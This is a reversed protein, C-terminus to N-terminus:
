DGYIKPSLPSIEKNHHVNSVVIKAPIYYYKYM